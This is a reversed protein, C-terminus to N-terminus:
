ARQRRIAAPRRAPPSFRAESPNIVEKTLKDPRPGSLQRRAMIQKYSESHNQDEPDDEYGFMLKGDNWLDFLSDITDDPMVCDRYCFLGGESLCVFRGITVGLSSIISIPLRTTIWFTEVVRGM